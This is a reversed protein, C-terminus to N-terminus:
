PVVQGEFGQGIGVEATFVAEKVGALLVELVVTSVAAQM